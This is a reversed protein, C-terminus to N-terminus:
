YGGWHALFRGVAMIRVGLEGVGSPPLAGAVVLPEADPFARSAEHLADVERHRSAPDLLGEDTIQILRAIGLGQRVALDVEGEGKWYYLGDSDERLLANHVAKEMLRGRDPAGSLSIANRLGTDIAHVQGVAKELRRRLLDLDAPDASDPPGSSGASRGGAPVLRLESAWAGASCQPAPNPRDTEMGGTAEIEGDEATRRLSSDVEVPQRDGSALMASPAPIGQRLWSLGAPPRAVPPPGERRGSEAEAAPGPAATSATAPAPCTTPAAASGSTRSPRCNSSWADELTYSHLVDGCLIARDYPGANNELWAKNDKFHAGSPPLGYAWSGWTVSAEATAPLNWKGWFYHLMHNVEVNVSYASGGRQFNFRIPGNGSCNAAGYHMKRGWYHIM